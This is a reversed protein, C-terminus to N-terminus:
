GLLLTSAAISALWLLIISALMLGFMSASVLIVIAMTLALLKEGIRGPCKRMEKM